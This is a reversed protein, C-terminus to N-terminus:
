GAGHPNVIAYGAISRPHLRTLHRGSNADYALWTNGGLHQELVFVHHRRVAVMGAGPAARPFKFWNAALWLARIPAGFVRVAAGCGCFARSPCGTPHAVITPSVGAMRQHPGSVAARPKYVKQASGFDAWPRSSASAAPSPAVGECPWLVNCDPHAGHSSAFASCRGNGSLTRLITVRPASFSSLAAAHLEGSVSSAM